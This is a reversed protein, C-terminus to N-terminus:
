HLERGELLCSMRRVCRRCNPQGPPTWYGSSSTWGQSLLFQQIAAYFFWPKPDEPRAQGTNSSSNRLRGIPTIVLPGYGHKLNLYVMGRNPQKQFEAISSETGGGLALCRCVRELEDGHNLILDELKM